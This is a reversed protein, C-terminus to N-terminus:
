VGGDRLLPYVRDPYPGFAGLDGLCYIADVGRARADCLAAELALYNNYIGGFVAIREVPEGSSQSLCRAYSSEITGSRPVADLGFSSGDRLESAPLCNAP